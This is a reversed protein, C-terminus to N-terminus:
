VELRLLLPELKMRLEEITGDNVIHIVNLDKFKLPRESPHLLFPLFKKKFRLWWGQPREILVLFVEFDDSMKLVCELENQFRLDDAVLVVDTQSFDLAKAQWKNVWINEDICRRGCETGLLQLLKRGKEDKQGNWGMFYAVEKLPGAFPLWAVSVRDSIM